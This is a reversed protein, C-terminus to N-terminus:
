DVVPLGKLFSDLDHAYILDEGKYIGVTQGYIWKKFDRYEEECLVKKINSITYGKITGLTILKLKPHNEMAQIDFPKDTKISGKLNFFDVSNNIRKNM